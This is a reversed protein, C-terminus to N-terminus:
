KGRSSTRKELRAPPESDEASGREDAYPRFRRAARQSAAQVRMDTKQQTARRVSALEVTIARRRKEERILTKIEQFIRITNDLGLLTQDIDQEALNGCLQVCKSIDCAHADKAYEHILTLQESIKQCCSDLRDELNRTSPM